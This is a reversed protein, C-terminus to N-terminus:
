FLSIMRWIAGHGAPGTGQQGRARSAGHHLRPRTREAYRRAEGQEGDLRRVRRRRRRRQEDDDPPRCRRRAPVRGDRTAGVGRRAPVGADGVPGPPARDHAAARPVGQRGGLARLAPLRVAPVPLAGDRPTADGVRGRERLRVAPVRVGEVARVGGRHRRGAAAAHVGPARRRAAPPLARRVPVYPPLRGAADDADAPPQLQRAGARM